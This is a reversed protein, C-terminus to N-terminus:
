KIIELIKEMKKEKANIMKLMENENIQHNRSIM